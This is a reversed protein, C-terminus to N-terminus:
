IIAHDLFPLSWEISISCSCTAKYTYNYVDHIGVHVHVHKYIEGRRDIKSIQQPSTDQPHITIRKVLSALNLLAHSQRPKSKKKTHTHISGLRTTSSEQSIEIVAVCPSLCVSLSVCACVYENVRV